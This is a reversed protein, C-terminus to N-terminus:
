QQNQLCVQLGLSRQQKLACLRQIVGGLADLATLLNGVLRLLYAIVDDFLQSLLSLLQVAGSVSHSDIRNLLKTSYEQKCWLVCINQLWM